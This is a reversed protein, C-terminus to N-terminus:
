ATSIVVMMMVVVMIDNDNDNNGNFWQNWNTNSVQAHISCM